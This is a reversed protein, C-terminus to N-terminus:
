ESEITEYETRIERSTRALGHFAKTDVEGVLDFVHVLIRVYKEMAIMKDMKEPTLEELWKRFKISRDAKSM